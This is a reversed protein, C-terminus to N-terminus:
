KNMLLCRSKKWNKAIIVLAVIFMNSWTHRYYFVFCGKLINGVTPSSPSYMVRNGAVQLFVVSIEMTAIGTQTEWRCYTLTVNVRWRQWCSSDYPKRDQGSLIIYSSIEYYNQNANRQPRLIHFMQKLSEWENSNRRTPTRQRSKYGM